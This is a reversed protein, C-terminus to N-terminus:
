VVSKRDSPHCLVKNESALAAATCHAIMFGSDLGPDHALFAPLGGNITPNVLRELRRESINALETVGIALYDAAKAPYEGHFNGGSIVFGGAADYFTDSPRKFPTLRGDRPDGDRTTAAAELPDQASSSNNSYSDSTTTSAEDGGRQPQQMMLRVGDDQTFIMPNDTASNLEVELLREVFDITDHVVGHVQPTCRLSYADQVKGTYRHSEFIESPPLLLAMLRRAVAVQGVHPRAAHVCPEFARPTGKLAEMSLACAVDACVAANRARTVAHAALSTMMQTGNIMALGEKAALQIPALGKRALVEKAPAHQGPADPDWMLGEGMLGLALHSLPALDGSAGVTGKSPVVSLCNANFAAVMQEVTEARIGSHGRELLAPWLSM